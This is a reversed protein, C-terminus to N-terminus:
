SDVILDPHAIFHASGSPGIFLGALAIARIRQTKVLNAADFASELMLSFARDLLFLRPPLNASVIALVLSTSVVPSTALIQLTAGRVTELHNSEPRSSPYRIGPLLSRRIGRAVNSSKMSFCPMGSSPRPDSLGRAKIM